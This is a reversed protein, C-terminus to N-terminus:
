RCPEGVRAEARCDPQAHMLHVYCDALAGMRGREHLRHVSGDIEHM